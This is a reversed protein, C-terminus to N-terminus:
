FHRSSIFSDPGAAQISGQLQPTRPALLGPVFGEPLSLERDNIIRHKQDPIVSQPPLPLSPATCIASKTRGIARRARGSWGHAWLLSFHKRILEVACGLKSGGASEMEIAAVSRLATSNEVARAPATSLLGTSSMRLSVDPAPSVRASFHPLSSTDEGTHCLARMVQAM